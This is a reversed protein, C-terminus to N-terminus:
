NKCMEIAYSSKFNSFIPCSSTKTIYMRKHQSITLFAESLIKM